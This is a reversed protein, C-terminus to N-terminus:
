ASEGALKYMGQGDYKLRGERVLADWIERPFERPPQISQIGSKGGKTMAGHGVRSEDDLRMLKLRKKFANYARKLEEPPFSPPPAAPPTEETM